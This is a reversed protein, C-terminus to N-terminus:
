RCQSHMVLAEELLSVEFICEAISDNWIGLTNDETGGVAARGRGWVGVPEEEFGDVAKAAAGFVPVVLAGGVKLFNTELLGGMRGTDKRTLDEWPM